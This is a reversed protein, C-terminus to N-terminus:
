QNEMTILLFFKLASFEVWCFFIELEVKTFTKDLTIYIVFLRLLVSSFLVPSLTLDVWQTDHKAKSIM